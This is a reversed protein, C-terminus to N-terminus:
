LFDQPIKVKFINVTLVLFFSVKVLELVLGEKINMMTAAKDLASSYAQSVIDGLGLVYGSQPEEIIYVDYNYDLLWEGKKYEKEDVNRIDFDYIIRKVRAYSLNLTEAIELPSKDINNEIDKAILSNRKKVLNGNTSYKRYGTASAHFVKLLKSTCLRGSFYAVANYVTDAVFCDRYENYLIVSELM